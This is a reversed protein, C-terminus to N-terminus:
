CNLEDLLTKAEKLDPLEFGETFWNYVTALMGRAEDVRGQHKLLRGLSIAARLEWSKAGQGHAIAAATHLSKEAEAESAGTLLLLEGRLRHAEAACFRQGSSASRTIAEEIVALGEQGRSAVLYAEALVGAFYNYTIDEGAASFTRMGELMTAIGEDTKGDEVAIRGLRVLACGLYYPFGQGRSLALLTEAEQHAGSYDRVFHTRTAVRHHIIMARAFPDLMLGTTNGFRNELRLAEEPYGLVWTIWSLHYLANFLIVGRNGEFDSARDGYHSLSQEINQRATRYEGMWVLTIGIRARGSFNLSRDHLREALTVMEDGLELARQFEGRVWHGIQLGEVTRVLARSNGIQESLARARELNAMYEESAGFGVMSMPRVLAVRITMEEADRVYGLALTGVLELAASLLSISERLASRAAAQTGALRLYELAKAINNSRGYHHALESLHDDLHDAFLSELQAATREHLLKRRQILLSNYAVEQTLVHKFIYTAEPLAPQEYIFGASRLHSLLHVLEDDPREIVGKILGLPFERGMVALTQLLDKAVPQLRDIRSTLIAQVTRPIRLEAAPKTLRVVTNRALAGEQFLVQVTEEMFFPNGASREVILDKLAQLSSDTGLMETLMEEGREPQLPDLPLQTYYTRNGWGHRYEPRHTVLLLVRADAINDAAMDLLMQTEGDIWHLDEFILVMPQVCSERIVIRKIAEFTRRQKIQPDMQALPDPTEQIGLLGFLYPMTDSLASDLAGLATRMKERRTTADDTSGIGFYDRLLELV